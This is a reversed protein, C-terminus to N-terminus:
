QLDILRSLIRNYSARLRAHASKTIDFKRKEREIEALSPKGLPWISLEERWNSHVLNLRDFYNNANKMREEADEIVSLINLAKQHLAAAALYRM